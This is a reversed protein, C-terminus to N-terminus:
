EGSREVLSIGLHGVLVLRALLVLIRPLLGTLLLAAARLGALLPLLLLFRPLLLIRVTLALGRLLIALNEASISCSLLSTGGFPPIKRTQRREFTRQEGARLANLYVFPKFQGDSNLRTLEGCSDGGSKIARFLPFRCTPL